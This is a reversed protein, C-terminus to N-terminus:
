DRLLFLVDPTGRRSSEGNEAVPTEVGGDDRGDLGVSYIRL